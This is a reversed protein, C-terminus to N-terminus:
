GQRAFREAMADLYIACREYIARMERIPHRTADIRAEIAMFAVRERDLDERHVEGLDLDFKPYQWNHEIVPVCWWIPRAEQYEADSQAILPYASSPFAPVWLGRM